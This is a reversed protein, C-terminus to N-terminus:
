TTHTGHRHLRSFIPASSLNLCTSSPATFSKLSMALNSSAYSLHHRAHRLHTFNRGSSDPTVTPSKYCRMRMDDFSLTGIFRQTEATDLHLCDCQMGADEFISQLYWCSYSFLHDPQDCIWDGTSANQNYLSSVIHRGNRNKSCALAPPSNHPRSFCPTEADVFGGPALVRAIESVAKKADPVHEIVHLIIVANLTSNDRPIAQVDAYITSNEYARAYARDFIDYRILKLSFFRELRRAHSRHPGFYAVSPRPSAAAAELAWLLCSFRHRERTRCRPCLAPREDLDLAHGHHTGRRTIIVTWEPVCNGCCPCYRYRSDCRTSNQLLQLFGNSTRRKHAGHHVRPIASYQREGSATSRAGLAM